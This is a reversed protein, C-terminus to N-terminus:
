PCFQMVSIVLLSVTWYQGASLDLLRAMKPKHERDCNMTEAAPHSWIDKHIAQANAIYPFVQYAM